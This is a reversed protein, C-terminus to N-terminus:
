HVLFTAGAPQLLLRLVSLSAHLFRLAELSKVAAATAAKPAPAATTSAPAAPSLAIHHGTRVRSM